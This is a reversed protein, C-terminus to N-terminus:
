GFDNRAQLGFQRQHRQGGRGLAFGGFAPAPSAGVAAVVRSQALHAHDAADGLREAAVAVAGAQGHLPPHVQAQKGGLAPIQAAQQAAIGAVCILVAM